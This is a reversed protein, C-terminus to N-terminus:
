CAPFQKNHSIVLITKNQKAHIVLLNPSVKICTPIPYLGRSNKMNRGRHVLNIISGAEVFIHV